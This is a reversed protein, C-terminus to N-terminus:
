KQIIKHDDDITYLIEDMPVEVYRYNIKKVDTLYRAQYVHWYETVMSKGMQTVYVSLDNNAQRYGNLLGAAFLRRLFKQFSESVTNMEKHNRNFYRIQYFLLGMLAGDYIGMSNDVYIKLNKYTLKILIKLTFYDEYKFIYWDSLDLHQRIQALMVDEGQKTYFTKNSFYTHNRHNSIRIPMYAASGRRFLVYISGKAEAQSSTLIKEDKNLIAHLKTEIDDMM